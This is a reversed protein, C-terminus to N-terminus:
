INDIDEYNYEKFDEPQGGTFKQDLLALFAKRDDEVNSISEDNKKTKEELLKNIAEELTVRKGMEAALEGAVKHLKELTKKSVKITTNKSM